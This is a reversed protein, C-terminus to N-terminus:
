AQIFPRERAIPSHCLLGGPQILGISADHITKVGAIEVKDHTRRRRSHRHFEAHQDVPLRWARRMSGVNVLLAVACHSFLACVLHNALQLRDSISLEHDLKETWAHFSKREREASRAPKM